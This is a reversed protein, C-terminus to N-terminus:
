EPSSWDMVQTYWMLFVGTEIEYKRKDVVICGNRLMPVLFETRFGVLVQRWIKKFSDVQRNKWGQIARDALPVVAALGPVPIAGLMSVISSAWSFYKEVKKQGTWILQRLGALLLGVQIGCDADNNWDRLLRVFTKRRREWSTTEMEKSSNKLIRALIQPIQEAVEVVPHVENNTTRDQSLQRAANHAILVIDKLHLFPPRCFKHMNMLTVKPSLGILESVLDACGGRLAIGLIMITGLDLERDRAKYKPKKTSVTVKATETSLADVLRARDTRYLGKIIEPNVYQVHLKKPLQERPVVRFIEPYHGKTIDVRLLRRSGNPTIGGKDTALVGKSSPDLEFPTANQPEFVRPEGGSSRNRKRRRMARRMARRM